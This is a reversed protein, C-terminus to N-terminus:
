HNRQFSQPKETIDGVDVKLEAMFGGPPLDRPGHDFLRDRLDVAAPFSGRRCGDDTFESDFVDFTVACSYKGDHEMASLFSVADWPHMWAKDTSNFHRFGKEEVVKRFQEIQNWWTLALIMPHMAIQLEDDRLAHARKTLAKFEIESEKDDGALIM